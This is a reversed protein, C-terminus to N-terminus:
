MGQTQPQAPATPNKADPAWREPKVLTGASLGTGGEVIVRDGPQVGGTV